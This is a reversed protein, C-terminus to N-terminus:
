MTTAFDMQMSLGAHNSAFPQPVAIAAPPQEVAVSQGPQVLVSERESNLRVVDEIQMQM